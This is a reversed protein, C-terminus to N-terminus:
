VNNEERKVYEIIMILVEPTRWLPLYDLMWQIIDKKM